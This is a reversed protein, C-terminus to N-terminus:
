FEVEAEPRVTLRKLHELTFVARDRQRIAADLDGSAHALRDRAEAVVVDCAVVLDRQETIISALDPPHPAAQPRAVIPTNM